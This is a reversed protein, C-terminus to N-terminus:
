EFQDLEENIGDVLALRQLAADGAEGIFAMALLRVVSHLTTHSPIALYSAVHCGIVLRSFRQARAAYRRDTVTLVNMRTTGAYSALVEIARPRPELTFLMLVDRPGTMALEEAWSGAHTGLLHVDPRLKAFTLRALRAFGEESGLGLCWVRPAETILRAAEALADPRM